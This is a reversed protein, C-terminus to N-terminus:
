KGITLMRALNRLHRKMRRSKSSARILWLSNVLSRRLSSVTTPEIIYTPSRGRCDVIWYQCDSLSHLVGGLNERTHIEICLIPRYSLLTKRAGALVELEAGEVDIKMLAVKRLAQANAVVQEDVTSVEISGDNVYDVSSSGLNSGTGPLIKAHGSKAGLALNRSFVALELGNRELNGQLIPFTQPNAEFAYVPKCGCFMSFYVSHTGIFAGVDLAAGDSKRKGLRDRIRELVDKEYFTKQRRMVNLIYDDDGVSQFVVERDEYNFSTRPYPQQPVKRL